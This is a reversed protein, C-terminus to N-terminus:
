YVGEVFVEFACIDLSIVLVTYEYVHGTHGSELFMGFIVVFEERGMSLSMIICGRYGRVCIGVRIGM